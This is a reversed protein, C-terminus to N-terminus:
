DARHEFMLECTTRRPNDTRVFFTQVLNTEFWTTFYFQQVAREIALVVTVIDERTLPIFMQCTFLIHFHSFINSTTLILFFLLFHTATYFSISSIKSLQFFNKIIFGFISIYNGQFLRM